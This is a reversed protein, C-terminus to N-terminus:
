RIQMVIRRNKAQNEPISKGDEDRNPALPKTDAYGAAKLRDPEIEESILYKVIGTARAASLEWNSPFRTTNIPIDDTHGEIDVDFKFYDIGNIADSVKKMMVKASGGIDAEGPGYLASSAFEMRIGKKGLEIMVLGAAREAVLASDLDKKIEALPTEQVKTGAIESRLGSKIQEFIAMNPESVSILLLFFCMLLTIMDAYTAMWDDINEEDGESSRFRNKQSSLSM